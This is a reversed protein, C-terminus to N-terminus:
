ANKEGENKVVVVLSPRLVKMNCRYGKRIVEKITGHELSEDNAFEVADHLFPDFKQGKAPIETLGSDELVKLLKAHLLKLGSDGEGVIEIAKDFDDLVPLLSRLLGEQANAVIDQRERLARKQYNEFEAQLYMLRTLLEENRRLLLVKEDPQPPAESKAEAGQEAATAPQGSDEPTKAQEPTEEDPKSEKKGPM